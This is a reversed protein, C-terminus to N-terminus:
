FKYVFDIFPLALLGADWDSGRVLAVDFTIKEGMIRIGGSFVAGFEPLIWNETVLAIRKSTRTMGSLAFVLNDAGGESSFGYGTSISVNHERSGFTNVGYVTGLFGVDSEFGLITGILTGVGVNWKDKLQFGTKASFFMIPNGSLTSLIEVGGGLDLHDSVGVYASNFLIFINQYYGEGKGITYATPSIFYRTDNPNPFWYKDNKGKSVVSISKIEAKEIELEGLSSAVRIREKNTELLKGVVKTGNNLMVQVLSEGKEQKIGEAELISAHVKSKEEIRNQLLEFSAWDFNFNRAQNNKMDVWLRLSSDGQVYFYAKVFNNTPIDQLINYALKESRTITDGLYPSVIILQKEQGILQNFSCLSLMWIIFYSIKKKM